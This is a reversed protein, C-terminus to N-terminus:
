DQLHSDLFELMTSHIEDAEPENWLEHYLGEYSRFTATGPQRQNVLDCFDQSGQPNTLKDGTGHLVLMRPYQTTTEEFLRDVTTFIQHALGARMPGDSTLPDMIFREEVGRTRSLWQAQVYDKGFGPLLGSCVRALTRNLPSDETFKILPAVLILGKFPTAGKYSSILDLLILGGMSYGVLFQPIGELDAHKGGLVVQEIFYRFDHAYHSFDGVRTANGQSHGHGQHDMAAVAYGEDLFQQISRMNNDFYAGFGHCFFILGKSTQAPRFIKYHISLELKQAAYVSPSTFVKLKPDVPETPKDHKNSFWSM